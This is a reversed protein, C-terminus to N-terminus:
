VVAAAGQAAREAAMVFAQEWLDASADITQSLAWAKGARGLKKRARKDEVLEGLVRGWGGDEVLVGGEDRGLGVYPGRASALWAVGSAAYEKVKINSRAANFPIDCLPAIGIDWKGMHEPLENFHVSSHRVYRTRDRLKLDIGITEIRVKPHSALLADFVERLGLQVVDETHEMAGVWGVVVGDHRKGRRWSRRQLMNEIIITNEVGLGAYREAIVANTTTMVHALRAMRVTDAFRRQGKLGGNQKYNPSNKPVASLDDDTDWVLGVGRDVLRVLARRLADESRRFVYVVDCGALEDLKPEGTDNEPWVVEHGRRQMAELPYTGRYYAAATPEFAAGIRM